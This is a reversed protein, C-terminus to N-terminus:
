ESYYSCCFYIRGNASTSSIQNVRCYVREGEVRLEVSGYANTNKVFPVFMVETNMKPAYAIPFNFLNAGQSHTKVQGQYVVSVWNGIKIFQGTSLGEGSNFTVENYFDIIKLKSAIQAIAKIINVKKM